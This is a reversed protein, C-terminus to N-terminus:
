IMDFGNFGLHREDNDKNKEVLGGSAFCPTMDDDNHLFCFPIQNPNGYGMM